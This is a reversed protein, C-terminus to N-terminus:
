HPLLLSEGPGKDFMQMDEFRFVPMITKENGGQVTISVDGIEVVTKGDVGISDGVLVETETGDRDRIWARGQEREVEVVRLDKVESTKFVEDGYAPICVLILFLSVVLIRM